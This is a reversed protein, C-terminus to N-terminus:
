SRTASRRRGLCKLHATLGPLQSSERASTAAAIARKAALLAAEFQGAETYAAALTDLIRSDIGGTILEAKLAFEVAEQGNRLAPEPSTGLLWALNNLIDPSRPKLELAKRYAIIAEGRRGLQELM